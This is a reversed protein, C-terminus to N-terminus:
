ASQAGCVTCQEDRHVQLTRWAFERADLISLSSRLPKGIKCILQLVQLAQVAGVIGVVPGLVGNENCNGGQEDGDGFLCQYCASNEDHADFVFLQGDLAQAAGSVLITKNNVAFANVSKRTAFNDTCDVIIDCHLSDGCEEFRKTIIILEDATKSARNALLFKGLVEAKKMGVQNEAFPLQRPLNSLEIEDHDILVLQGVGANWLYPAVVTGLGGAGVIVVRAETLKQQGEIDMEPLLIQRSFRLLEQDNLDPRETM